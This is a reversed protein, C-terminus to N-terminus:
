NDTRQELRRLLDVLLVKEVSHGLRGIGERLEAPDATVKLREIFDRPLNSIPPKVDFCEELIADFTTGYTEIGPRRVDIAQKGKSLIFVRDRQMDSPVFPAHTSLVCEQQAVPGPTARIGEATPLALVRSTFGVRWQPNFHSEPEDLLFLVNPYAVMGFTGLLQALQHEGDSLSVYDVPDTSSAARFSVREFRFVKDEDQPEPLRSAFRRTRTDRRFRQRTSRPIALDNLMALKHLAGYLDLTSSWFAQFARRCEADVLYDFTYVERKEDYDYCTSCGRLQAIYRELEDTLQIGRRRAATVKRKPAKPAAGHALQVICRFARLDDLEVSNLLAARQESGGLLLNAVLVELHTGYDVLMLRTDSIARAPASDELAARSVEDAYGSRGILFPLSLTENEGSTYGVVKRPLYERTGPAQPDLSKWSGRHHVDLRLTPRRRKDPVRRIRVRTRNGTPQPRISYELEFKLDPNGELREEDPTCVHFAAQFMEAIVQLLQSKGSGNPGVLCLPAFTENVSRPDRLWLDLGDLLGGCTAAEIIHVRLLRM